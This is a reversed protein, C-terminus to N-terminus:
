RFFRYNEILFEYKGGRNRVREMYNKTLNSALNLNKWVLNVDFLQSYEEVDVDDEVSDVFEM